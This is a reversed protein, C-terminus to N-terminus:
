ALLCSLILIAKELYFNELGNDGDDDGIAVTVDGILEGWFM